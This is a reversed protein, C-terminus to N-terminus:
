LQQKVWVSWVEQGAETADVTLTDNSLKLTGTSQIPNVDSSQVWTNHNSLTYTGSDVEEAPGDQSPLTLDVYYTSDTLRFTGTAAPPTLTDPTGGFWIEALSYTGVLEAATIGKVGTSSSSCGALAVAALVVGVLVPPIARRTM